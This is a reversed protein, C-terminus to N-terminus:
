LFLMKINETIMASLTGLDSLAIFASFLALFATIAKKFFRIKNKNVKAIWDITDGEFILTLM